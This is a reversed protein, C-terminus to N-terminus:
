DFRLRNLFDNDIGIKKLLVDIGTYRSSPIWIRYGSPIRKGNPLIQRSLQILVATGWENYQWLKTFNVSTTGDEMCDCNKDGCYKCRLSGDSLSRLFKGM